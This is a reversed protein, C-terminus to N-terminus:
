SAIRYGLAREIAARDAFAQATWGGRPHRADGLGFWAYGTATEALIQHSGATIDITVRLVRRLMGDNRVNDRGDNRIDNRIDDRGDDRGDYRDILANTARRGPLLAVHHLYSREVELIRAGLADDLIRARPAPADPIAPADRMDNRTRQMLAAVEPFDGLSDVIGQYGHPDVGTAAIAVYGGVGKAASYLLRLIAAPSATGAFYGTMANGLQTGILAACSRITVLNPRVDFGGEILAFLHRFYGRPDFRIRGTQLASLWFMDGAAVGAIFDRPSIFAYHYGVTNAVDRLPEDSIVILDLDSQGPVFDAPRLSSGYQLIAIAGQRGLRDIYADVERAFQAAHESM